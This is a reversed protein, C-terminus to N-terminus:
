RQRTYVSTERLHQTHVYRTKINTAATLAMIVTSKTNCISCRLVIKDTLFLSTPIHSFWIHDIPLWSQYQRKKVMTESHCEGSSHARRQFALIVDHDNTHTSM